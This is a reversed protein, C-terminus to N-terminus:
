RQPSPSTRKGSSQATPASRACHGSQPCFRDFRGAKGICKPQALLATHDPLVVDASGFTQNM